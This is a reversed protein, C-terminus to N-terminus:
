TQLLLTVAEFCCGGGLHRCWTRAVDGVVLCRGELRVLGQEHPPNCTPIPVVVVIVIGHAHTVGVGISLVSVLALALALALPLHLALSLPLRWCWRIIGVGAGHGMVRSLVVGGSGERM